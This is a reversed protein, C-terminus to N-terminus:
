KFQSIHGTSDAVRLRETLMIQAYAAMKIRKQQFLGFVGNFTGNHLWGYSDVQVMDCILNLSDRIVFGIHYSCKTIVDIHDTAPDDNSVLSEPYAYQLSTM